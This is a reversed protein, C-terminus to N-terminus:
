PTGGFSTPDEFSVQLGVRQIQDVVCSHAHETLLRQARHEFPVCRRYAITAADREVARLSAFGRSKSWSM